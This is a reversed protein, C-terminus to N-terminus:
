PIQEMAAGSPKHKGILQRLHVVYAAAGGPRYGTEALKRGMADLILVTPFGRVDYEMALRENQKQLPEPSEKRRPFDASFLVLNTAAYQQFEPQSFVEKNLRICWGCWDSGEFRALIPRSTEKAKTLAEQFSLLWMGETTAAELTADQSWGNGGGMTLALVVLFILRKM